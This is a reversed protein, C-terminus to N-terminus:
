CSFLKLHNSHRVKLYLNSIYKQDTSDLVQLEGPITSLAAAVVSGVVDIHERGGHTTAFKILEQM